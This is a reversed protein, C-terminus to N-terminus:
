RREVLKWVIMMHLSSFDQATERLTNTLSKVKEDDHNFAEIVNYDDDVVLFAKVPKPGNHM